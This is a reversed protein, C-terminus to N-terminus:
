SAQREVFDCPSTIWRRSRLRYSPKFGASPRDGDPPQIPNRIRQSDFRLVKDIAILPRFEPDGCNKPRSTNHRWPFSGDDNRRAGAFALDRDQNPAADAIVARTIFDPAVRNTGLVKSSGEVAVDEDGARRATEHETPQDVSVILLQVDQWQVQTTSLLDDSLRRPEADRHLKHPIESLNRRGLSQM